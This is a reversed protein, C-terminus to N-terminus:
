VSVIEENGKDDWMQDLGERVGLVFFCKRKLQGNPWYLLAEQDLRGERYHEVTKLQGNEYYYERKTDSIRCYLAGSPYYLLESFSM